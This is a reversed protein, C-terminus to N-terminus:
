KMILLRLFLQVLTLVRRVRIGNCVVDCLGNCLQVCFWEWVWVLVCVWVV